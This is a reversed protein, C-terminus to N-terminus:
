LVRGAETRFGFLRGGDAILLDPRDAAAWLLAGVAVPALGAWRGRGIWLVM